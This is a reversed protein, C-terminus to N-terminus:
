LRAAARDGVGHRNNGRGIVIGEGRLLDRVEELTLKAAHLTKV